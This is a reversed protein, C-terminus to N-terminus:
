SETMQAINYALIYPFFVNISNQVIAIDREKEIKLSSISKNKIIYKNYMYEYKSILNEVDKFMKKYLFRKKSNSPSSELLKAIDHLDGINM